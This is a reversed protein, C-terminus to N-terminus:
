HIPPKRHRPHSRPLLVLALSPPSIPGADSASGPPQRSQGDAGLGDPCLCCSRCSRRDGRLQAPGPGGGPAAGIGIGGGGPGARRRWRQQHTLAGPRAAPPSCPQTTGAMATSGGNRGASYRGPSPGRRLVPPIPRAPPHISPAPAPTRWGRPCQGAGPARSRSPRARPPRPRRCKVPRSPAPAARRARSPGRHRQDAESDAPSLGQAVRLRPFSPLHTSNGRHRPFRAPPPVPSASTAGPGHTLQLLLSRHSLPTPPHAGAM